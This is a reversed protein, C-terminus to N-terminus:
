GKHYEFIVVKVTGYDKDKIMIYKQPYNQLVKKNSMECVVIAGDCLLEKKHLLYLAKELYESEFPPDLLVMDFADNRKSFTHLADQFDSCILETGNTDNRLNQKITKISEKQADVFVVKEAGRSLCEIGLAGSGAFLDLVKRGAIHENIM